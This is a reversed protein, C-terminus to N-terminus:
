YAVGDLYAVAAARRKQWNIEREARLGILNNQWLSVLSQAGASPNTVMQLSAEQSVDLTVNGDDALWIENQLVLAIISGGSVSGPVANSTVVPLGFWTGGSASIDPFTFVDQNTRKMSLALATSPKMVWVAQTPDLEQAIFLQMLSTVDATIQALSNGSSPISSSGNTVSAPSVNAVAAVAPDIFQQDLFLAMADMLDQRVVAEASPSSFRALETTIVVIGAAKAHGLNTANFALTGVPKPAAEGVWGVTSGSTQGAVRINFPVRRLGNMKGLITKPRLLEIFEAQMNEYYVLPSAWTADNSTGAASPAKTTLGIEDARRRLELAEKFDTSGMHSAAQIIQAVEPTDRWKKAIQEATAMNGKSHALAMAYRTFATGKPLNRKAALIVAGPREVATGAPNQNPEGGDVPTANAKILAEHERMRALQTDLSKVEKIAQEYEQRDGDEMDAGDEPKNMLEEARAMLATRQELAEAIRQQITKVIQTGKPTTSQRPQPPVSKGSAGPTTPDRRQTSPLERGLAALKTRSLSKIATISADANAPITVASLELWEWKLFRYGWTGDIQSHELGNFGISLGRVLKNKLYSWAEALIKTLPDDPDTVNAVECVVEIGEDTVKAENVWGIPKRSDHQWLLPLPLKFVAGKPEVIDDMRDPTPTSAIGTFIRKGDTESTSKIELTSYARDHM